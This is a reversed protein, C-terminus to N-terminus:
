FKKIIELFPLFFVNKRINIELENSKDYCARRNYSFLNRNFKDLTKVFINVIYNKLKKKFKVQIKRM